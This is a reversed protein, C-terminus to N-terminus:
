QLDIVIKHFGFQKYYSEFLSHSLAPYRYIPDSTVIPFLGSITLSCYTPNKLTNSPVILLNGNAKEIASKESMKFGTLYLKIVEKATILSETGIGYATNNPSYLTKGYVEGQEGEFFFVEKKNIFNFLESFNNSLVSDKIGYSSIRYGKYNKQLYAIAETESTVTFAGTRDIIKNNYTAFVHTTEWQSWGMYQQVRQIISRFGSTPFNPRAFHVYVNDKQIPFEIKTIPNPIM